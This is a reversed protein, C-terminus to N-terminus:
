QHNANEEQRRAHSGDPPRKAILGDYVHSLQFAGQDRNLVGPGARRIWISERVQRSRLHSEHDVVRAGQWDIVHNTRMVHDTVASKHLIGESAQKEYRTFRREKMEQESEKKHEELRTRLLRGTEGIYKHDYNMCPIEYVVGGAEWSEMKDKPHVLSDKLTNVPRMATDVGYRRFIRSVAESTGKM